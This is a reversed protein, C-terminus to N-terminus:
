EIEIGEKKAAKRIAKMEEEIMDKPGNSNKILGYIKNADVEIIPTELENCILRVYNFGLDHLVENMLNIDKEVLKFLLENSWESFEINTNCISDFTCIFSKVIEYNLNEISESFDLLKKTNCKECDQSFGVQFVLIFLASIIIRTITSM